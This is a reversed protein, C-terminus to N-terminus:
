PKLVKWHSTPLSILKSIMSIAWALLLTGHIDPMNTGQSIQVGYYHTQATKLIHSGAM